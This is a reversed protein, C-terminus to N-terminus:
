VVSECAKTCGDIGNGATPPWDARVATPKRGNGFRRSDCSPPRVDFRKCGDRRGGGQRSAVGRVGEGIVHVKALAGRGRVLRAHSGVDQGGEVNNERRYLDDDHCPAHRSQREEM